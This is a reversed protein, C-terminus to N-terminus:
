ILKPWVIVSAVNRNQNNPLALSITEGSWFSRTPPQGVGRFLSPTRSNPHHFEWGWLIWTHCIVAYISVNPTYQHYIDGYIAYMSGIPVSHFLFMIYDMIYWKSLPFIIWWNLIMGGVIPIYDWWINWVNGFCWNWSGNWALRDSQDSRPLNDYNVLRFLEAM